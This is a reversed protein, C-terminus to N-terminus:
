KGVWFLELKQVPISALYSVRRRPLYESFGAQTNRAAVLVHGERPVQGEEYHQAPRNLYFELGFEQEHKTHYVALPVAERSFGQIVQAVPRASLTADVAPSTWRLIIAVGVVIPIMTVVRLLRFGARSVLAGAVVLTLAVAVGAAVYTGHNWLLRHDELVGRAALAAFLTLGCLAGHLGAQWPPIRMAQGQRAALYELVLLAGAPVSPLVYGPLKSQSLSFFVVPALLWILLFLQWSDEAVSFASKRESWALRAREVVALVMWLTWPMAALLLVPVFFWFPQRHHYVDQGFRALNHELIFVRFFEPNRWQVAVYWPLAVALFLVIGPVWLTRFLTRWERKVGAFIVLVIVALLPAVPGKALTALGLFVYFAALYVRKRSEYWAYWGLLAIAFMAALPMDTSAARAFGIMGVCAATILAGDMQLGSRFRKLFLYVAVILLTADVAAPLRAAQDDVGLVSYSLMAQWYYLAPKELWPKGQLTPTVWDNREFMERAVQAYRPEDAGLLGFSGLGYFFLFGCFAVLLLVDTRTRM